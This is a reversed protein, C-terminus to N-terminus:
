DLSSRTIIVKRTEASTEFSRRTVRVTGGSTGAPFFSKTTLTAVWDSSRAFRGRDLTNRWLSLEATTYGRHCEDAIIVDFAHNPILLQEVDDDIEDGEGSWVASRGFLNIAM